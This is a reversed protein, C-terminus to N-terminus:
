SEGGRHFNKAGTQHPPPPLLFANVFGEADIAHLLPAADCIVRCFGPQTVSMQKTEPLAARLCRQRDTAGGAPLPELM